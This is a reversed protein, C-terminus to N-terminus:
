YGTQERDLGLLAATYYQATIGKPDLKAMKVIQQVSDPATFIEALKEYRGALMAGRIRNALFGLPHTSIASAADALRSQGLQEALQGRTATPSGAGPVKGTAELTRMLTNAGQVFQNPNVGHADAVGRLVEQFNARQQDTGFVSKAFNAGMMRNEGSNIRQTAADFETQLWTRAMGPFATRDVANMQTYVDRINEPRAIKENSLVGTVRPVASPAGPDFGTKGAVVGIPGATLPDITNRTIDQYLQRGQAISPNSGSSQKLAAAIPGIAAAVNKQEPTAGIQPLESANRAQRYLRDAFGANSADPSALKTLYTDIASREQPFLGPPFKSAAQQAQLYAQLQAAPDVSQTEAAGYHPNVAATRAREANSIIDTATRQANAAALSPEIDPGSQSLLGSVARRVQNPRQEMFTNIAPAGSRSAAVDAAMAQLGSAPLSEPGMLPVGAAKAAAQKALAANIEAKTLPGLAENLARAPANKYAAAVAPAGGGILGGALRAWQNDDTLAGAGETGATSGAVIAATRAPATLLSRGMTSATQIATDAIKGARTQPQYIPEGTIAQHMAEYGPMIDASSPAGPGMAPFVMGMAKHYMAMQEPTIGVKSGMWDEASNKLDRLNGLTGSLNVLGKLPAVLASKLVDAGISVNADVGGFKRALKDYDRDPVAADIGGYKRALADYDIDSM